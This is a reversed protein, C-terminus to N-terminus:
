RNAVPVEHGATALLQTARIVIGSLAGLTINYAAFTGPGGASETIKTLNRFTDTIFQDVTNVIKRAEEDGVEAALMAILDETEKNM